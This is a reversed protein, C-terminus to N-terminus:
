LYILILLRVYELLSWMGRAVISVLGWLIPNDDFTKKIRLDSCFVAFCTNLLLVQGLGAGLTLLKM